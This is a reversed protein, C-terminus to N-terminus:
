QLNKTSYNKTIYELAEIRERFEIRKEQNTRIQNRIDEFLVKRSKQLTKM